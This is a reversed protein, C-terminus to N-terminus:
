RPSSPPNWEDGRCISFEFEWESGSIRELLAYITGCQFCMISDVSYYDGSWSPTLTKSAYTGPTFASTSDYGSRLINSPFEQGRFGAQLYGESARVQSDLSKWTARYSSISVYSRGEFYFEDYYQTLTLRYSISSDVKSETESSTRLLDAPVEASYRVRVSRGHDRAISVVEERQVAVGVTKGTQRNRVHAVIEPQSIGRSCGDCGEQAVAALATALIMVIGVSWVVRGRTAKRLRM